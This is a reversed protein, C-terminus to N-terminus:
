KENEKKTHSPSKILFMVLMYIILIANNYYLYYPLTLTM